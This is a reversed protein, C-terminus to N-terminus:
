VHSQVADVNREPLGSRLGHGFFALFLLFQVLYPSCRCNHILYQLVGILQTRDEFVFSTAVEESLKCSLWSCFGVGAHEVVVRGAHRHCGHEAYGAYVGPQGCASCAELGTTESLPRSCFGNVAQGWTDMEPAHRGFVEELEVRSLWEGQCRHPGWGFGLVDKPEIQRHIDFRDPHAFHEEDRDASQVSCILKDGKKM